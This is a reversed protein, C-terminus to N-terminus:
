DNRKLDKIILISGRPDSISQKKEFKFNWKKKATEIEENVTKGKLFILVTNEKIFNQSYSFLKELNALARSIVIDFKLNKIKELRNYIITYNLNHKDKFLELFRTKKGNSDVLTVNKFGVISLIIGPLGAGSGMDIISLQREKILPVIQLSDLIHSNWPNVLTSGGVINTHANYEKLYVVFNDLLCAENTKLNYNSLTQDKTM